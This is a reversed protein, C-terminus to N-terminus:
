RFLKRKIKGYVKHIFMKIYFVCRQCRLLFINGRDLKFNLTFIEPSIIRYKNILLKIQYNWMMDIKRMNKNSLYYDVTDEIGETFTISCNFNPVVSKIKSNDFKRTHAKDKSLEDKYMTMNREIIDCPIYVLKPDKNVTQAITNIIDNIKLHEDSTIHFDENIAKKNLLLGTIGIAFDRTHTLTCYNEGDDWIVIPRDNLIREMLTWHARRAIITYPIRTNGYTIYPRVITYYANTNDKFYLCLLKECNIKNASYFWEYNNIETKETILKDPNSRDYVTASSIFIFQKYKGKFLDLTSRLQDPTYSLFDIVVDFFQGDLQEKLTQTQRIDGIITKAGKPLFQKNKGRNILYLDIDKKLCLLATDKSLVGTGGIIIVKM